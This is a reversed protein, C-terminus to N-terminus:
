KPILNRFRSIKDSYVVDVFLRTLSHEDFGPSSRLKEISSLVDKKSLRVTPVSLKKAVSKIGDATLNESRSRALEVLDPLREFRETGVKGPFLDTSVEGSMSISASYILVPEMLYFKLMMPWLNFPADKKINFFYDIMCSYFGPSKSDVRWIRSRVDEGSELDVFDFLVLFYYEPEFSERLEKEDKLTILWKSDDKRTIEKSGCSPCELEISSVGAKCDSCQGLQDVRSCTKIEAHKGDTLVLDVGRAGSRSGPFGTVVSVLHQGVYGM